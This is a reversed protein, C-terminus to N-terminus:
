GRHRHGTFGEQTDNEIPRDTTLITPNVPGCFTLFDRPISITDTQSPPESSEADGYVVIEEIDDAM